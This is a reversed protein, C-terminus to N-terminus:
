LNPTHGRTPGLGAGPGQTLDFRRASARSFPRWSPTVLAGDPGPLVFWLGDVTAPAGAGLVHLEEAPMYGQGILAVRRGDGSEAVDLLVVAHGPSGPDVFVDGAFLPADTAVAKTDLRLSQTGAYRFVLDLWRRYSGHSAGRAAGRHREIGRGAAIIREGAVWDSFRTRDGSTFHFSTSPGLGRAWRWEAYLRIATDACQQADTEGVDMLIVAASPRSLPRQRFDLVTTRDLRVPLTRLFAAFSRPEAAVRTFGPPTPFRADLPQGPGEGDLDALWPHPAPSGADQTPSGTDPAPSGTDQAPSGTDPAPSGTDRTPAPARAALALAPAFWLSLATAWRRATGTTM